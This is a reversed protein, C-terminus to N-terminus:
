RSHCTAPPARFRVRASAASYHPVDEREVGARGRDLERQERYTSFHRLAHAALDLAEARCRPQLRCLRVLRVDVLRQALRLGAIVGRRESDDKFEELCGEALDCDLCDAMADHMAASIEAFGDHKVLLCEGIEFAQVRERRQVLRMVEGAHARRMAGKGIRQLHGTEIGGKM